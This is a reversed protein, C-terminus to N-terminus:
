KEPPTKPALAIVYRYLVAIFLETALSSYSLQLCCLYSFWPKKYTHKCRSFWLTPWYLLAVVLISILWITSTDAMNYLPGHNVGFVAIAISNLLLLAYLHLIYFFMPVSWFVLLMLSSASQWREMWCLM